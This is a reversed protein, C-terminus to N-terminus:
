TIKQGDFPGGVCVLYGFPSGATMGGGQRCDDASVQPTVAHATAAGTIGLGALATTAVTAAIIRRIRM